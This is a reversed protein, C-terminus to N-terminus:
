LTFKLRGGLKFTLEGFKLFFALWSLADWYMTDILTIRTGIYLLYVFYFMLIETDRLKTFGRTTQKDDLGKWLKLVM